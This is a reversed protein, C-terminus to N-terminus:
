LTELASLFAKICAQNLFIFSILGSILLVLGALLFPMYISWAKEIYIDELPFDWNNTKKRQIARYIDQAIFGGGAYVVASFLSIYSIYVAPWVKSDSIVLYPVVAIVEVIIVLLLVYVYNLWKCFAKKM